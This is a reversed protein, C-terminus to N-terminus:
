DDPTYFKVHSGMEEGEVPVFLYDKFEAMLKERDEPKVFFLFFGGGGAGLLKGGIVGAGRARRYLEDIEPGAIRSDISRKLSWGEDLLEGFEMISRENDILIDRGLDVQARIKHLTDKKNPISSITHLAAESAYRSVGTFMLVLNDFLEARRKRTIPVPRVNFDGSQNFEILNLGGYVAAIQDQIGVNEQLLEQELYIAERALDHKSLMSGNLTHLASLLGAAFSSSSGIGARAPMDGTHHIEIGRDVEAHILAARVAPHEIDEISQPTEIKSWVIRHKHEFFPPLYRCQIYCYKNISTSLVAGGHEQFWPRYDTGGGFFSVRYPTATVIMSCV